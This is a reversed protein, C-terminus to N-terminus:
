QAGVLRATQALKKAATWLADVEKAARAAQAKDSFEPGTRGAIMAGVYAARYGITEALLKGRGELAPAATRSLRWQSDYHTLLFAFPRGHVECLEVAPDIAEIDIPSARVPILVIDAAMIAGEILHMLAPPTDVIIWQWGQAKLLQVDPVADEVNTFLRPNLPDGRLEWWRALAQQPDLDLLAVKGSDQAARVGIAAALTTKGVGGKSSVVAICRSAM